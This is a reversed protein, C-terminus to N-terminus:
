GFIAYIHTLGLYSLTLFLTDVLGHVIINIWMNKFKLYLLAFAIGFVATSLLGAIGQYLHPVCFLLASVVVFLIKREGFARKLQSYVFGRFLLEEGVAASIWMKGLWELYLKTNGELPAFMSYDAPENCIRNIIPDIIVDMSIELVLYSLLIIKIERPGIRRFNLSRLSGDQMYTAGLVFLIIVCFTYPFRFWPIYIILYAVILLLLSAFKNQLLTKM